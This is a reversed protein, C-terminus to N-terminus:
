AIVPLAIPLPNMPLVRADDRKQRARALKSRIKRVVPVVVSWAAVTGGLLMAVAWASSWCQHEMLCEVTAYTLWAVAAIAPLRYKARRFKARATGPSAVEWALTQFLVAGTAIKAPLSM